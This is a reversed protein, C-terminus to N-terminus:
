LTATYLELPIESETIESFIRIFGLPVRTLYLQKIRFNKDFPARTNKETAAILVLEPRRTMLMGMTIAKRLRVNGYLEVRRYPPSYSCLLDQDRQFCFPAKVFSYSTIM